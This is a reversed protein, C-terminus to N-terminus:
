ERKFLAYTGSFNETKCCKLFGGHCIKYMSFGLVSLMEILNKSSCGCQQASPEYIEMVIQIKPSRKILQEAGRLVREEVGEVDIKMLDITEIGVKYAYNDLTTVQVPIKRVAHLQEAPRVAAGLSNYVDSGEPFVHLDLIDEKEAVAMEVVTINALKNLEVNQKLYNVIPPYPEFSWVHGGAGVAKGSIISYLGVNAGVDFVNMGPKVVDFFFRIENEEFGGGIYLSEALVSDSRVKLLHDFEKCILDHPPRRRHYLKFWFRKIEQRPHLALRKGNSLFSRIM